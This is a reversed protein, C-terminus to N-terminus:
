KLINKNQQEQKKQMPYIVQVSNIKACQKFDDVKSPM